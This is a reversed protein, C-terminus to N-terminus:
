LGINTQIKIWITYATRVCVCNLFIPFCDYPFKSGRRRTTKGFSCRRSLPYLGRKKHSKVNDYTVDKGFIENFNSLNNLLYSSKETLMKLIKMLKEDLNELDALM